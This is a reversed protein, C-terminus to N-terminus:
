PVNAVRAGYESSFRTFRRHKSQGSNEQEGEDYAMEVRLARGPPFVWRGVGRSKHGDFLVNREFHEVPSTGAPRHDKQSTAALRSVYEVAEGGLEGGGPM